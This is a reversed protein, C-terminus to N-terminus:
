VFEIAILEDHYKTRDRVVVENGDTLKEERDEIHMVMKNIDSEIENNISGNRISRDICVSHSWKRPNGPIKSLFLYNRDPSILIFYTYTRNINIITNKTLNRM